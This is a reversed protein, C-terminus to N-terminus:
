VPYPAHSARISYRINAEKKDTQKISSNIGSISRKKFLNLNRSALGSQKKRHIDHRAEINIPVIRSKSVRKRYMWRRIKIERSNNYILM